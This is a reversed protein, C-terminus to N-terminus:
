TSSLSVLMSEPTGVIYSGSGSRLFALNEESVMGRDMVGIRQAQGYKSEMVQVIQEVTKSDHTNHDFVEYGLLRGDDTIMLGICVPLCDPCRDRSYRRQAMPNALCESEFFYTSTLDYLLLDYTLDFLDGLRKPLHSEIAENHQLLRDLVTYLRDTHIKDPLVGLLDEPATRAYWHDEIHLESSPECSRAITLVTAV